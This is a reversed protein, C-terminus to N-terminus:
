ITRPTARGTALLREAFTEALKAQLGDLMVAAIDVLPHLVTVVSWENLGSDAGFHRVFPKIHLHAISRMGGPLAVAKCSSAEAGPTRSAALTAEFRM